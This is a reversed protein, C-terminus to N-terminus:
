RRFGFKRELQERTFLRPEGDVRLNGTELMYIGPRVERYWGRDIPAAYARLYALYDDLTRFTRGRADPLSDVPTGAGAPQKQARALWERNPEGAPPEQAGAM